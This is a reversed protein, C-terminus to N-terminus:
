AWAPCAKGWGPRHARCPAGSVYNVPLYIDSPADFDQSIGVFDGTSSSAYAGFGNGFVVGFTAIEQMYYWAGAASGDGVLVSGATSYPYIFAEIGGSYTWPSSLSTTNATGSVTAVVNSGVESVNITIAASASSAAAAMALAAAMETWKPKRVIM